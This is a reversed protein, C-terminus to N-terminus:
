QQDGEAMIQSFHGNLRPWVWRSRRVKRAFRVRGFGITLLCNYPTFERATVAALNANEYTRLLGMM